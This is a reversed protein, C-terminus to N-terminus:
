SVDNQRHVLSFDKQKAAELDAPMIFTVVVQIANEEGVKLLLNSPLESAFAAILKTLANKTEQIAKETQINDITVYPEVEPLLDQRLEINPEIGQYSNPDNIEPCYHKYDQAFQEPTVEHFYKRLFNVIEKPDLM